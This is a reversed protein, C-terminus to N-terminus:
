VSESLVMKKVLKAIGPNVQAEITPRLWYRIHNRLFREDKNSPDNLFVVNHDVCWRVNDKHTTLRFPRIVNGNRYPIVGIRGRKLVNILYEEICDDLNHGTIVPLSLEKFFKYRENRYFNEISEGGPTPADLMASVYTLKHQACYLKIVQEGVESASTDHHFFAPTINRGSRVLFDLCAMSDAGGSVAVYCVKPLKGQRKLM